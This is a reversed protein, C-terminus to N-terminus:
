LCDCIADVPHRGTEPNGMSPDVAIGADSLARHKQAQPKPLRQNAVLQTIQGRLLNPQIQAPSQGGPVTEQGSCSREGNDTGPGPIFYKEIKISCDPSNTINWGM